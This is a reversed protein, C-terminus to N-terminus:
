HVGAGQGSSQLEQEVQRHFEALRDHLETAVDRRIVEPDYSRFLDVMEDCTQTNAILALASSGRPLAKKLTDLHLLREEAEAGLDGAAMRTNVTRFMQELPGALSSVFYGTYAGLDAVANALDGEHFTTSTGDPFTAGIRVRGVLPRSVMGIDHLWPKRDGNAQTVEKLADEADHTGQFKLICLEMNDEKGM